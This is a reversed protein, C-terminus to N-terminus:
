FIVDVLSNEFSIALHEDFCQNKLVATYLGLYSFCVLEMIMLGLTRLKCAEVSFWKVPLPSKKHEQHAVAWGNKCGLHIERNRQKKKATCMIFRM